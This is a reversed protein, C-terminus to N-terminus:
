NKEPSAAGFAFSSRSRGQDGRGSVVGFDAKMAGAPPGGPSSIKKELPPRGGRPPSIRDRTQGVLSEGMEERGRRITKEDVGTIEFLLRDPGMGLGSHSSPWTGAGSSNM